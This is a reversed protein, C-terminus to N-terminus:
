NGFEPDNFDWNDYTAENGVEHGEIQLGNDQKNEPDFMSASSMFGNELEVETIKTRPAEYLEKKKM